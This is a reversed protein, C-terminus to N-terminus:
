RVGDPQDRWPRLITAALPHAMNLPFAINLSGDASLPREDGMAELIFGREEGAEIAKRIEEEIEQWKSDNLMLAIRRAESAANM